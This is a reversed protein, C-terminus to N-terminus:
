PLTQIGERNEAIIDTNVSNIDIIKITREKTIINTGEKLSRALTTDVWVEDGEYIIIRVVKKM